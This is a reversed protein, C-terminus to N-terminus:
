LFGNSWSKFTYTHWILQTLIDEKAYNIWHKARENRTNHLTSCPVHSFHTLTMQYTVGVLFM